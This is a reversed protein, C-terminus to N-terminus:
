APVRMSSALLSLRGLQSLHCCCLVPCAGYIAGDAQCFKTSLVSAVDFVDLVFHFELAGLYYKM